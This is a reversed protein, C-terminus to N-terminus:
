VTIAASPTEHACRRRRGARGRAATAGVAQEAERRDALAAVDEAERTGQGVVRRHGHQAPRAQRAHEGGGLVDHDVRVLDRRDPRLDLGRPDSVLVRPRMAKMVPPSPNECSECAARRRATRRAAGAMDAWSIARTKRRAATSSRRARQRSWSRRSRRPAPAPTRSRRAAGTARPRDLLREAGVGVERGRCQRSRTGADVAQQARVGLWARRSRCRRASGRSPTSSGRLPGGDRFGRVSLDASMGAAVRGTTPSRRARAAGAVSGSGRLGVGARRRDGVADLRAIKAAPRSTM